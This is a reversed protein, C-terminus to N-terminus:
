KEKKSKYDITKHSGFLIGESIAQIVLEENLKPSVFSNVDINLGRKNNRSFDVFFNYIKHFNYDEAQRDLYLYYTKEESILTLKGDKKEVLDPIKDKKDVVKLNLLNKQKKSQIYLNAM